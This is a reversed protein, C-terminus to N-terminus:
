LKDALDVKELLIDTRIIDCMKEAEEFCPSHASNEFTYFGKIPAKIKQLFEKSIDYSVQYDYKGHLIYVPVDLELSKSMLDTNIVFDWLHELSFKSGMAFNYKEKLTYGKFKLITMLMERMSTCNHMIGIGLKMMGNSRLGLYSISLNGGKDIEYKELKQVMKKDGIKKFKDIMYKYALVESELQRVVQGIGIYAQFLHPAQKVTLVGLLSGWSHGMVYIKKKNFRKRLYQVVKITDSIMTDITMEESKIKRNYSIGSGRQEWWCVTFIKELGSPYKKNFAIEPSGPGGHLFLLVPNESNEIQLFMGQNIGNVEIFIKEEM